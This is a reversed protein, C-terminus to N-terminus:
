AEFRVSSLGTYRSLDVLVVPRRLHIALYKIPPAHVIEDLSLLPSVNPAQRISPDKYGSVSLTNSTREKAAFRMRNYEALNVATIVM